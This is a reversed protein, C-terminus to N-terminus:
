VRANRAALGLTRFASPEMLMAAALPWNLTGASMLWDSLLADLELTALALAAEADPATPLAAAVVELDDAAGEAVVLVVLPARALAAEPASRPRAAM